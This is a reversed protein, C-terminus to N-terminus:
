CCGCDGDEERPKEQKNEPEQPTCCSVEVDKEKNEVTTSCCEKM